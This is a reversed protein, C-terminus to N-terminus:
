KINNKFNNSSKNSIQIIQSIFQINFNQLIVENVVFSYYSLSIDTKVIM